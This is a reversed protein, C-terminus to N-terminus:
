EHYIREIYPSNKQHRQALQIKVVRSGSVQCLTFVVVTEAFRDTCAITFFQAFDQKEMKQVFWKCLGNACANRM